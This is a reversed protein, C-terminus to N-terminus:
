VEVIQRNWALVMPGKVARGIVAQAEILGNAEDLVEDLDDFSLVVYADFGRPDERLKRYRQHNVTARKVDALNSPALRFDPGAETKGRRPDRLANTHRWRFAISDASEDFVEFRKKIAKVATAFAKDGLPSWFYVRTRPLPAKRTAARKKARAAHAKATKKAAASKGLEYSPAGRKAVNVIANSKELAAIAANTAGDRATLGTERKLRFQSFFRLKWLPLRKRVALTDLIAKQLLAAAEKASPKAAKEKAPKM